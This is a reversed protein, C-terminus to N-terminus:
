SVFDKLKDPSTRELYRRIVQTMYSNKLRFARIEAPSESFPQTTKSKRDSPDKFTGGHKPCLTLYKHDSQHIHHANGSKIKDLILLYDDNLENLITDDMRWIFVYPIIYESRPKSEDHVYWVFLINKNKKVLSSQSIQTNKSEENYNIINLSLPEKVRLKGDKGMKLASSKIEVGLHPIDAGAINNRSLGFVGQEVLDGVGAKSSVRSVDDSKLIEETIEKLSKGEIYFKAIRELEEISKIDAINVLGM